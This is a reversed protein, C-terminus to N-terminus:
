ICTIPQNSSLIAASSVTRGNIVDVVFCIVRYALIGTAGMSKAEAPFRKISRVQICKKTFSIYAKLVLIFQPIAEALLIVFRGDLWTPIPPPSTPLVALLHTFKSDLMDHIMYEFPAYFFLAESCDQLVRSEKKRHVLLSPFLPKGKSHNLISSYTIKTIKIDDKGLNKLSVMRQNQTRVAATFFKISSCSNIAISTM